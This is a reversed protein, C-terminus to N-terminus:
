LYPYNKLILKLDQLPEYNKAYWYDVLQHNETPLLQAAAPTLGNPALVAPRLRPLQQTGTIYGIWTKRGTLVRIANQLLGAGKRHFLHMPFTILFLLAIAVDVVRKARRYTPKSLNFLVEPSFVAGSSSSSDSGVMSSSGAAHFRLRLTHPLLQILGIITKYTFRPGACLALEKANLASVMKGTEDVTAIAKETDGDLALRGMIKQHLGHPQLLQKINEFDRQTGAVLLDPQETKEITLKIVGANVLLSRLWRILLFALVAGFVLIGRSFRYQEPLLAYLALLTVTAILAARPLHRSRYQRDYLGAYYAVILYVLTFSPLAILLLENPYKIQPKVVLVWLEKVVWFSFLILLADLVPLGVWKVLKAVAAIAARVWIAFHIAANFVFAKSGGYHKQVFTSMASYFLRVYNLSGRKTSEGKFHIIETEALYYNKYGEKQIRYSLDVDEGYMFFVEDFGGVHDLVDKRIMMFAGALVDVEHNQHPSLHGLHYRSFTKSHPFMRSLGFLKFLSTVPSPFARKSEKLFQGTGDIMRVGVAGADGNEEFFRICKELTDEALLTDPNLFLIYRGTAEQLGRNCAKAFGLNRSSQIFRVQPFLPQLYAVSGDTSANDVVIVQVPLHRSAACVSHLCQELFFRVNYNVIIICVQM